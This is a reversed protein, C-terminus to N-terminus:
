AAGAHRRAQSRACEDASRGQPRHSREADARGGGGRAGCAVARRKGSLLYVIEGERRVPVVIAFSPENDSVGVVFDSVTSRGTSLVAQNAELLSTRDPLQGGFPVNTDVIQRSDRDRLAINMGEIASAALANEYFRPLDGERLTATAALTELTSTLGRIEREVALVSTRAAELAAQEFRQREATVLRWALLTAIAIVPVLLVAVLIVLHARTSFRPSEASAATEADAANVM